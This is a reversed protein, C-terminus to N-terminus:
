FVKTGYIAEHLSPAEPSSALKRDRDTAPEMDDADLAQRVMGAVEDADSPSRLLWRVIDALTHQAHFADHEVGDIVIRVPDTCIEAM